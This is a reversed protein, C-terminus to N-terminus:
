QFHGKTPADTAPDLTAVADRIDLSNKGTCRARMWQELDRELFRWLRRKGEGVPYAPLYGERAWGTVTRSHIGGLYEAADEPTLFRRVDANQKPNTNVDFAKEHETAV